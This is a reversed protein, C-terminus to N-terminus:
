PTSTVPDPIEWAGQTSSDWSEYSDHINTGIVQVGLWGAIGVFSALLMYEILDVGSEDIFWRRIQNRMARIRKLLPVAM